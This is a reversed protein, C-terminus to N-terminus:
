PIDDCLERIHTAMEYVHRKSWGSSLAVSRAIDRTSDGAAVMAHVQQRVKDESWELGQSEGQIVLTVKGTGDSDSDDMECQVDPAPHVAVHREGLTERIDHLVGPLDLARARCLTTYREGALGRLVSRRASSTIPLTGLFTFRSAPLGSMILGTIASDPGPIPVLDVDRACLAQVLAHDPESWETVNMQLWAVDGQQLASLIADLHAPPERGELWIVPTHVGCRRLLGRAEVSAPAVIQSVNHLIRTARLTLDDWHNGLANLIYFQSTM